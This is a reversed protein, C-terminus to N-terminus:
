CGAQSRGCREHFTFRSADFRRLSIRKVRLTECRYTATQLCHSDQSALHAERKVLYAERDYRM